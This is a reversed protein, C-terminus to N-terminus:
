NIVIYPMGGPLATWIDRDTTCFHIKGIAMGLCMLQEMIRHSGTWQNENKDFCLNLFSWGKKFTIDMNDLMSSIEEKYTSVRNSNFGYTAVIGEVMITKDIPVGNEVEEDKFLCNIFIEHVRDAAIM